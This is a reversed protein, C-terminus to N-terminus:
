QTGIPNKNAIDSIADVASFQDTYSVLFTLILIHGIDAYHSHLASHSVRGDSGGNEMRGSEGLDVGAM